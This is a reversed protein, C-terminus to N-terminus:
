HKAHVKRKNGRPGVQHPTSKRNEDSLKRWREVRPGSLVGAIAAAQVACGPERVHTCNRFKCNAALEIIEAFTTDIGEAVHSVHLNRMGPNDVIWGGCTMEHLSRATTTHRGKGDSERIAGTVQQPALSLANVLTSKGVGSSGALAVTLGKCWPSLMMVADASRANLALVSLDRQLTRAEDVYASADTVLDAKTLLIVPRIGAENAMALYRELRAPNFDANCSTVIFLTDVNAAALQAEAQGEIRRQLLSVRELRRVVRAQAIDLLVWDGVAFPATTEDMGLAIDATGHTSLVAMKNRHVGVIRGPTLDHEAMTVQDAFVATWGLESLRAAISTKLTM